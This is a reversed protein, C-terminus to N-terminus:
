NEGQGDMSVKNPPSHHVRFGLGEGKQALDRKIAM